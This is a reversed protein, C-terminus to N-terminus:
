GRVGTVAQGPKSDTPGDGSEAHASREGADEGCDDASLGFEDAIL